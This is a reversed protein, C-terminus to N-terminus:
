ENAKTGPMGPMGQWGRLSAPYIKFVTDVDGFYTNGSSQGLYRRTMRQLLATVKRQDSDSVVEANGRVVIRRLPPWPEDITFSVQDNQRLYTAWQSGHWAVIYFNEGDWEQWVPVVHPRGDPRICALRAAWPGKLFTEIELPSLERIAQIAPPTQQQFPTYQPAGLRYSLHAALTRLELLYEDILKQPQWRFSPASLIIVADPLIGDRCIPLALEISDSRVEIGYGNQKIEPDPEPSLLEQVMNLDTLIQGTPFVSRVQQQGEIQSIISIGRPTSIALAITEGWNKLATEQSFATQLEQILPRAATRWFRLRPGPLYVGRTGAQELYGLKKLTKLLQFLSSRSIQLEDLIEQPSLGEPSSLLLEVLRLTREANSEILPDNM